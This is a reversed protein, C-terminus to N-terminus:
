WMQEPAFTLNRAWRRRRNARNPMQRLPLGEEATNKTNNTSLAEAQPINGFGTAKSGTWTAM